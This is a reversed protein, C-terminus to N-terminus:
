FEDLSSTNVQSLTEPFLKTMVDNLVYTGFPIKHHGVYSPFWNIKKPTNYQLLMLLALAVVAIIIYVGGKKGM